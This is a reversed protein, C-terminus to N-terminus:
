SNRAISTPRSSACPFGACGDPDHFMFSRGLNGSDWVYETQTRFGMSKVKKSFADLTTTVIALEHIGSSAYGLKEIPTPMVICMPHFKMRTERPEPAGQEAPGGPGM